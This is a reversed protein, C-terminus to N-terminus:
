VSLCGIPHSFLPNRSVDGSIGPNLDKYTQIVEQTAEPVFIAM